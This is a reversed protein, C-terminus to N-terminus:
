EVELVSFATAYELSHSISVHIKKIGYQSALELANEHLIIEPKGLQNVVVEIDRLSFTRFGTGLGKAVAEKASFFGAYSNPSKGTLWILEGERFCKKLFHEKKIAASVRKIEIIDTGIGFIM